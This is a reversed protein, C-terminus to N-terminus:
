HVLGDPEGQAREAQAERALAAAIAADLEDNTLTRVDTRTINNNVTQAPKGYGRDLLALAATNRVGGNEDKLNDVLAKIADVTHAQALAQVDRIIAPRGSPNGSQGKKWPM